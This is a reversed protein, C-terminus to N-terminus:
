GNNQEEKIIANHVSERWMLCDLLMDELAKDFPFDTSIIDNLKEEFEYGYATCLKTTLELMGNTIQYLASEIDAYVFEERTM